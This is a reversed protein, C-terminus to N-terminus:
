LCGLYSLYSWNWAMTPANRSSSHLPLITHGLHACCDCSNRLFSRYHCWEPSLRCCLDAGDDNIVIFSFAAYLRWFYTALFQHEFEVAGILFHLLKLSTRLHVLCRGFCLKQLKVQRSQFQFWLTIWHNELSYNVYTASVKWFVSKSDTPERFIKHFPLLPRHQAFLYDYVIQNSALRSWILFCISHFCRLCCNLYCDPHSVSDM